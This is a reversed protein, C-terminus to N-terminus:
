EEKAAEIPMKVSGEVATVVTEASGKVPEVVVDKLKEVDGTVVGAAAEGTKVVTGVAETTTETVVETTERAVGFPYVFIKKFFNVVKNGEEAWAMGPLSAILVAAILSVAIARASIGRMNMRGRTIPVLKRYTYM